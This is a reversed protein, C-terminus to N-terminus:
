ISDINAFVKANNMVKANQMDGEIDDFSGSDSDAMDGNFEDYSKKNKYVGKM